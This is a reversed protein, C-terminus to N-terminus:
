TPISSRGRGVRSPARRALGGRPARCCCPFTSYFLPTWYSIAVMAAAQIGVAPEQSERWMLWLCAGSAGALFFLLLAGHFRAHPHWGPHLLHNASWDLYFSMAAGVTLLVTTLLRALRAPKTLSRESM